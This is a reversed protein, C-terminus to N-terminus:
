MIGANTNLDFGLTSEAPIKWTWDGDFGPPRPMPSFVPIGDLTVNTRSDGPWFTEDYYTDGGSVYEQVGHAVLMANLEDDPTDPNELIIIEEPSFPPDALSVVINQAEPSNWDPGSIIGFQEPTYVPNPVAVYNATITYLAMGYGSNVMIQVPFDGSFEVPIQLSFLYVYQSPDYWGIPLPQPETPITGTYVQNGSATVTVSVTDNGFGQGYFQMTRNTM